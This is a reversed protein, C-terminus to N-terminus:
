KIELIFRARKEAIVFIRKSNREIQGIKAHFM